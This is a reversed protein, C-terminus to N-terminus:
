QIISKGEDLSYMNLKECIRKLNDRRILRIESKGDFTVNSHDVFVQVYESNLMEAEVERAISAGVPVFAKLSSKIDVGLERSASAASAKPRKDFYQKVTIGIKCAVWGEAVEGLPFNELESIYLCDSQLNQPPLTEYLEEDLKRRWIVMRVAPMYQAFEQLSNFAGAIVFLVENDQYTQRAGCIEALVYNKLGANLLVNSYNRSKFESWPKIGKSAAQEIIDDSEDRLTVLANALPSLKLFFQDVLNMLGKRKAYTYAGRNEEHWREKIAYGKLSKMLSEETWKTNMKLLSDMQKAVQLKRKQINSLNDKNDFKRWTQYAEFAKKVGPQSSNAFDRRVGLQRALRLLTKPKWEIESQDGLKYNALLFISNSVKFPYEKTYNLSYIRKYIAPWTENLRRVTHSGDMCVYSRLLKVLEYRSAYAVTPRPPPYEIRCSQFVEERVRLGGGADKDLQGIRKSYTSYKKHFEKGSCKVNLTKIAEILEQKGMRSIATM